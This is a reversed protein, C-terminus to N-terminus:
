CCTRETYHPWHFCDLTTLRVQLSGNSASSVYGREAALAVALTESKRALSQYLGDSGGVESSRGAQKLLVLISDYYM